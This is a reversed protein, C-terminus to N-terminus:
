AAQSSTWPVTTIPNAEDIPLSISYSWWDVKAGHMILIKIGAKVTLERVLFARNHKSMVIYETSNMFM